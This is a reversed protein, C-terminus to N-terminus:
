SDGDVPALTVLPAGRDFTANPRHHVTKVIGDRWAHIPTEMKMSEIVVMTQGRHVTDGPEVKVALVIGPMPATAVDKGSGGGAGAALAASDLGRVSWTRGGLHVHTDDGKRALWIRHPIGDLELMASGDGLRRLAALYTRGNLEVRLGEPTRTLRPESRLSGMQFLRPM